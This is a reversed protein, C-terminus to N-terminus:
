KSKKGFYKTKILCIYPKHREGPLVIRFILKLCQFSGTSLFNKALRPSTTLMYPRIKVSHEAMDQIKNRSKVLKKQMLEFEMHRLSNM